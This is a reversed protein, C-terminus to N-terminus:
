RTRAIIEDFNIFLFALRRLFLISKRIKFHIMSSEKRYTNNLVRCKKEWKRLIIKCGFLGHTKNETQKEIAHMTKFIM